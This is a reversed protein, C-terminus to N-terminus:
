ANEKEQKQKNKFHPSDGWLNYGIEEGINGIRRELCVRCLKANENTCPKGDYLKYGERYKTHTINPMIVNAGAQLGFERGEPHLAQLATTAAINVDQLYLRTLAIMKIGLQLQKEKNWNRVQSALPTQEHPIYPGMGIMDIDNKKFFIIDDALMEATQGPLGIMVGTGVQYGLKALIKLCEFRYNFDHDQPHLTRYLDSNSTEIRLLYRHAGAKLWRRYTEESQEGLSLTIGLENNSMKKIRLLIDEVFDVFESDSREGSQLVLSGYGQKWAFRACELIEEPQMRFRKVQKNEKRIGCYYCNKSCINSFEIIGRFYVKNGVQQKKVRYATKKLVEFKSNDETKLFQILKSKDLNKWNYM